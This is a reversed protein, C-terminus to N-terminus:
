QLSRGYIDYGRQREWDSPVHDQYRQRERQADAADTEHSYAAGAEGARPRERPHGERWAGTDPDTDYIESSAMKRMGERVRSRFAALRDTGHPDGAYADRNSYGHGNADNPAVPALTANEPHNGSFTNTFAGSTQPAQQPAGMVDDPVVPGGPLPATGQYPPAGGSAAPDSLGAMPPPTGPGNIPTSGMPDPSTGPGDTVLDTTTGARTVLYAGRRGLGAGRSMQKATFSAHLRMRRTLQPHRSGMRRHAASWAAQSRPSDTMGAYLGAEFSPSGVGALRQGQRWKAAFLYGKRFDTDSMLAQPAFSASARRLRATRPARSVEFARQAEGTNMAQGSDGGMSAPADLPSQPSSAGGFGEAYGKVYPSVGSSNDAFAPRDGRARDAAGASRGAAYDGSEPSMNQSAPDPTTAQSNYPANIDDTTRRPQSWADAVHRSATAQGEDDARYIGQPTTNMQRGKAYAALYSSHLDRRGTLTEYESASMAARGVLGHILGATENYGELYRGHQIKSHQFSEKHQPHRGAMADSHGLIRATGPTLTAATAQGGARPQAGEPSTAWQAGFAESLPFAVGAPLEDGQPDPANNPDTVQQIQPLGSAAQSRMPRGDTSWWDHDTDGQPTSDDDGDQDPDSSGIRLFHGRPLVSATM